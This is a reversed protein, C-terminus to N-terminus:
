RSQRRTFVVNRAQLEDLIFAVNKEDKALSEPASVGTEKYRGSAVLRVAATAAYGTTRAMSHFGTKDDYTDYLDWRVQRPKGEKQGEAIVRMVTLDKEGEKLEWLPFLLHSTLEIPSVQQGAVDVPEEEFFGTQKLLQIKECYGPYRLTKEKMNRAPIADLLSRLGDTNFAELTGVNDFFLWEYDTLPEKAVVWGNEKLRAPRTYEELVDAPSFPAKYEYPKERIVPLGGVYIMVDDVQEMGKVADTALINSMGPAVGMDCIVTVEKEVALKNLSFMDEPFFAIDVVNKGQEIGNKLIRFGMSGPVANVVMEADRIIKELNTKQSLDTLHTLVNEPLQNLRKENNDAAEVEFADDSALDSIIARGVLGAGLVTIKMKQHFIRSNGSDGFSAIFLQM